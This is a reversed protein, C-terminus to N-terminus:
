ITEDNQLRRELEFPDIGALWNDEESPFPGSLMLAEDGSSSQGQESTSNSVLPFSVLGVPQPVISLWVSQANDNTLQSPTFLTSQLGADHPWSDQFPISFENLNMEFFQHRREHLLTPPQPRALNMDGGYWNSYDNLDCSEESETGSIRHTAEDLDDQLKIQYENRSGDQSSEIEVMSQYPEEQSCSAERESAHHDDDGSEHSSSSYIGPQCKIEYEGGFVGKPEECGEGRDDTELGTNPEEDYEADQESNASVKGPEVEPEEVYKGCREDDELSAECEEKDYEGDQEIVEFEEELDVMHQRGVFDDDRYDDESKDDSSSTDNRDLDAEVYTRKSTSRTNHYKTTLEKEMDGRVDDSVGPRNAQMTPTFADAWVGDDEERKHQMRRNQKKIPSPRGSERSSRKERSSKPCSNAKAKERGGPPRGRVLLLESLKEAIVELNEPDGVDARLQLVLRYFHQTPLRWFGTTKNGPTAHKFELHSVSQVDPLLVDDSGKVMRPCELANETGKPRMRIEVHVPEASKILRAKARTELPAEYSGMSECFGRAILGISMGHIKKPVGKIKMNLLIPAGDALDLTYSIDNINFINRKQLEHVLEGDDDSVKGMLRRSFAFTGHLEIGVSNGKADHIPCIQRTEVFAPWEDDKSKTRWGWGSIGEIEGHNQQAQHGYFNNVKCKKKSTKTDSHIEVNQHKDSAHWADAKANILKSKRKTGPVSESTNRPAKRSVLAHKIPPGM